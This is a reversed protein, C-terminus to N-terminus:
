MVVTSGSVYTSRFHQAVDDLAKAILQRDIGIDHARARRIPSGTFSTDFEDVRYRTVGSCARQLTAAPAADSSAGCCASSFSM